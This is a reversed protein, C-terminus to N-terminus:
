GCDNIEVFGEWVDFDSADHCVQVMGVGASRWIDFVKDSPRPIRPVLGITEIICIRLLPIWLADRGCGVGILLAHVLSVLYVKHAPMRVMVIIALTTRPDTKSIALGLLIAVHKKDLGLSARIELGDLSQM